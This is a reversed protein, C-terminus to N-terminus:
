RVRQWPVNGSHRRQFFATYHWGGHLIPVVTVDSNEHMQVASHHVFEGVQADKPNLLTVQVTISYDRGELRGLDVGQLKGWCVVYERGDDTMAHVIEGIEKRFMREIRKEAERRNINDWNSGIRYSRHVEGTRLISMPPRAPDSHGTSGETLAATDQTM